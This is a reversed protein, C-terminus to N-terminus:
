IAGYRSPFKFLGHLLGSLGAQVAEVTSLSAKAADESLLTLPPVLHDIVRSGLSTQVGSHVAANLTDVEAIVGRACGATEPQRPPNSVTSVTRYLRDGFAGARIQLLEQVEQM